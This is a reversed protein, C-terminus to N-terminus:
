HCKQTEPFKKKHIQQIGEALSCVYADHFKGTSGQALLKLRHIQKGQPNEIESCNKKLTSFRFKKKASVWMGLPPANADSFHGGGGGLGILKGRSNRFNSLVCLQTNHINQPESECRNMGAIRM